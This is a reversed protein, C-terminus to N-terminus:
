DAASNDVTKVVMSAEWSAAKSGAWRAAMTPAMALVRLAVWNDVKLVVLHEAKM